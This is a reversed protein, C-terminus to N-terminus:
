NNYKYIEYHYIKKLLIFNKELHEKVGPRRYKDQEYMILYTNNPTIKIKNFFEEGYLYYNGAPYMYANNNIESFDGGKNYIYTFHYLGIVTSTKNQTLNEVYLVVENLGLDGYHINTSYPSLATFISAYIMFSISTIIIAKKIDKYLLYSFFIPLIILFAKLMVVWIVSYDFNQYVMWVDPTFFPDGVVFYYYNITVLLILLSLLIEKKNMKKIYDEIDKAMIIALVPVVLIYHKAFGIYEVGTLVFFSINVFLFLVLVKEVEDNKKTIIKKGFRLFIFLLYISFPITLWIVFDKFSYLSRAISEFFGETFRQSFKESTNQRFIKSFDGDIISTYVYFSLVFIIIVGMLMFITKSINKIKNKEFFLFYLLFVGSLIIISTFKTIIVLFMLMGLILPKEMKNKTFYLLSLITTFSLIGGDIDVLLADQIVFPHLLYIGVTILGLQKKGPYLKKTFVLLVISTLIVFIINVIKFGFLNYGFIKSSLALAYVYSPPHALGSLKEMGYGALNLELKGTTIISKAIWVFYPQESVLPKNIQLFCLFLFIGAVLCYIPFTIKKNMKIKLVM